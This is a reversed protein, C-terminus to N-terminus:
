HAPISIRSGASEDPAENGTVSSHVDRTLYVWVTEPVSQRVATQVDSVNVSRSRHSECGPRSGYM